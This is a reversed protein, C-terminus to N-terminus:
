PRLDQAAVLTAGSLASGAGTSGISSRDPVQRMLCAPNDLHAIAGPPVVLTDIPPEVSVTVAGAGSAVAGVVVRALARRDYTAAPSGSADWKWGIRDGVSLALNAPLGTLGIASNGDADLNQAWGLASGNFAGGGARNMGAFGAPASRPYSRTPDTGLFLRQRGRLRAIFARWLDASDRDIRDLEYTAIWLPWGAQVGGQRGSAEPAEYDVREPEFQVRAIGAPIIPLPLPAMM